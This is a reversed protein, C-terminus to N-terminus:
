EYTHIGLDVNLDMQPLVVYQVLRDTFCVLHSSVGITTKIKVGSSIVFLMKERKNAMQNGERTLQRNM